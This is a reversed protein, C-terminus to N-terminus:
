RDSIVVVRLLSHQILLLGLAHVCERQKSPKRYIPKLRWGRRVINLAKDHESFGSDIYLAYPSALLDYVGDCQGARESFKANVM